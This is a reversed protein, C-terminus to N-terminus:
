RMIVMRFLFVHRNLFGPNFYFAGWIYLNITVIAMWLISVSISIRTLRIIIGATKSRESTSASCVLSPGTSFDAPSAAPTDIAVSTIGDSSPHHSADGRTRGGEEEETSRHITCSDSTSSAVHRSGPQEHQRPQQQEEDQQQQVEVVSSFDKSVGEVARSSNSEEDSRIPFSYFM